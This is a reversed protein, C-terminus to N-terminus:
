HQFLSAYIGSSVRKAPDKRFGDFRELLAFKEQESVRPSCLLNPDLDSGARRQVDRNKVYVLLLPRPASYGSLM